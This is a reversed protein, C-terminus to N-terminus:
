DDVTWGELEPGAGEEDPPPLLLLGTTEVIRVVMTLMPGLLEGVVNTEDIRVVMWGPPFLVFWVMEEVRVV